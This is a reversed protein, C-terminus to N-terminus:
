NGFINVPKEAVTVSVAEEPKEEAPEPVVPAAEVQTTASETPTPIVLTTGLTVEARFPDEGKRQQLINVETVQKNIGISQVYNKIATEIDSYTLTIQM